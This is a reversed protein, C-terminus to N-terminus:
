WIVTNGPAIEAPVEPYLMQLYENARLILGFVPNFNERSLQSSRVKNQTFFLDNMSKVM